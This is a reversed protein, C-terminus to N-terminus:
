VQDGAGGAPSRGRRRGESLRRSVMSCPLVYDGGTSPHGIGAYLALVKRARLCRNM